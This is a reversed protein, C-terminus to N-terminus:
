ELFIQKPKHINKWEKIDHDPAWPLALLNTIKYKSELIPLSEDDCWLAFMRVSESIEDMEEDTIISVCKGLWPFMREEKAKEASYNVDILSSLYSNAIHDISTVYLLLRENNGDVLWNLGKEVFSYDDNRDDSSQM